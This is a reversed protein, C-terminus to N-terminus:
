VGTQPDHCVSSVELFLVKLISSSKALINWLALIYHLLSSINPFIVCACVTVNSLVHWLNFTKSNVADDDPKAQRQPQTYAVPQITIHVEKKYIISLNTQNRWLRKRETSNFTFVKLRNVKGLVTTHPSPHVIIVVPVLPHYLKYSPVDAVVFYYFIFYVIEKAKCSNEEHSM